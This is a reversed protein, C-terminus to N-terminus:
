LQEERIKFAEYFIIWEAEARSEASSQKVINPYDWVFCAFYVKNGNSYGNYSLDIFIGLEDFYDYLNRFNYKKVASNIPLPLIFVIDVGDTGVKPEIVQKGDTQTLWDPYMFQYIKSISLFEKWAKPCEEIIKDLM